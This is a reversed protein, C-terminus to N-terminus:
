GRPEASRPTLTFGVVVEPRQDQAPRVPPTTAIERAWMALERLDLGCCTEGVLERVKEFLEAARRAHSVVGGPVGERGKVGAAALKILGKLFDALPGHRGAAKWLLEWVEHAEWYCGHNFLDLAYLFPLGETWRSPDLPQPLTVDVPLRHTSKVGRGPVFATAPLPMEPVFRPTTM